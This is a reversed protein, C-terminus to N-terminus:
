RAKITVILNEIDPLNIQGLDVKGDLDSKYKGPLNTITVVKNQCKEKDDSVLYLLIHKSTNDKMVRVLIDEQKTILSGIYNYKSIVNHVPASEALHVIFSCDPINFAPKVPYAVYTDKSSSSIRKIFAKQKPSPPTNLFNTLNADFALAEEIRQSCFDCKSLHAQRELIFESDDDRSLIFQKPELQTLHKM